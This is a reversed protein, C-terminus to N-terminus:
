AQKRRTNRQNGDKVEKTVEPLLGRSRLTVEVGEPSVKVMDSIRNIPAGHKHWALIANVDSFNPRQKM